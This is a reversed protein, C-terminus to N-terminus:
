DKKEAKDPKGAGEGASEGEGAGAGAGEGAGEGSANKGSPGQGNGTAAGEDAKKTPVTKAARALQEACYAAVKDEGGALTVLRQWATSDLAKGSGEVQDYARCKAEADQATSPHGPKGATAGPLAASPDAAPRGSAGASPTPRVKDGGDPADSTGSSGIAAVAVGGLALSAVFLSLTTKVSLALRRPERPRWDDRRRTRARHAGAARAARFAAVARQEGEADARHGRLVAASLLAELAADDLAVNPGSARGSVHGLVLGDPHARRRGSTGGGNQQEGM